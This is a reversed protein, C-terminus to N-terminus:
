TVVSNLTPRRKVKAKLGNKLAVKELWKNNPKKTVSQQQCIKKQFFIENKGSNTYDFAQLAYKFIYLELKADILQCLVFFFLYFSFFPICCFINRQWLLSFYFQKKDLVLYETTMRAVQKQTLLHGTACFSTTFYNGYKTLSWHM